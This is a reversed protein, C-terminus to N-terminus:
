RWHNGSRGSGRPEMVPVARMSEHRGPALLVEAAVQGRACHCGEGGSRLAPRGADRTRWGSGETLM